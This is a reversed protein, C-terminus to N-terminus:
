IGHDTLNELDGHQHQQHFVNMLEGFSILYLELVGKCATSNNTGPAWVTEYIKPGKKGGLLTIIYYTCLLHKFFSYCIFFM